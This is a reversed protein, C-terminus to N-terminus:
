TVDFPLTPTLVLRTGGTVHQSPPHSPLHSSFSACSLFFSASSSVLSTGRSPRGLVRPCFGPVDISVHIPMRADRAFPTCGFFHCLWLPHFALRALLASRARGNAMCLSIACPRLFPLHATARCRVRADQASCMSGVASYPTTVDRAGRQGRQVGGRANKTADEHPPPRM